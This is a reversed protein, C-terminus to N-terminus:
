VPLIVRCYQYCYHTSGVSSSSTFPSLSYSCHNNLQGISSPAPQSSFAEVGFACHPIGYDALEQTEFM